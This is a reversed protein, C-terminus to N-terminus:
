KPDWGNDDDIPETDKRNTLEDRHYLREPNTACDSSLMRQYETSFSFAGNWFIESPLARSLIKTRGYRGCSFLM